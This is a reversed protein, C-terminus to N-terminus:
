GKLSFLLKHNILNHTFATDPYIKNLMDHYLQTTSTKTNNQMHTGPYIKNLTDPNLCQETVTIFSSISRCALLRSLQSDEELASILYASFEAEM